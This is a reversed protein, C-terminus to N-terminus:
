IKDTDVGELRLTASKGGVTIQVRSPLQGLEEAISRLARDRARYLRGLVDSVDVASVDDAPDEDEPDYGGANLERLVGRVALEIQGNLTEIGQEYEAVRARKSASWLAAFEDDLNAAAREIQTRYRTAFMTIGTRGVGYERALVAHTKGGTALEHILAVRTRVHKSLKGYAADPNTVYQPQERAMM